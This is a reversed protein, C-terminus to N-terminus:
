RLARSLAEGYGAKHVLGAFSPATTRRHFRGAEHVFIPAGNSDEMGVVGLLGDDRRGLRIVLDVATRSLGGIVHPELAAVIGRGGVSLLEALAPADAQGVPDVILLDPRLRAGAALLPAFAADSPVILEVKSPQPWRFERHRALTVIRASARASARASSLDRALAALLATKGSGEPGVVLVNLRCCAAIRLLEAMPRDLTRAAILHAFTAKGPEGRRLVLIPGAPAAPPFIVMGEGGARLRLMVAGSSPRRVLRGVLESLHAQDRFREPSPEIAGNREVYIAAPGNVFVARVSRDAWILDIPGMGCLESLALRALRDHRGPEGPLLEGLAADIAGAAAARPLRGESVTALRARAKATVAALLAADSDRPTVDVLRSPPGEFVVDPVVPGPTGPEDGTWSTEAAAPGATFTVLPPAPEARQRLALLEAVLRRLEYSTLTVGRTRFYNHVIGGIAYAIEPPSRSTDLALRVADEMEAGFARWTEQMQRGRTVDGRLPFIEDLSRPARREDGAIADPREPVSDQPSLEVDLQEGGSLATM